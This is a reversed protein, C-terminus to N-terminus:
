DDHSGEVSRLVARVEAFECRGTSAIKELAERMRQNESKMADFLDARVYEVVPTYHATLNNSWQGANTKGNWCWTAIRDYAETM